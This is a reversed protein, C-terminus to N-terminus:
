MGSASLFLHLDFPINVIKGTPNVLANMINEFIADQSNHHGKPDASSTMPSWSSLALNADPFGTSLIELLNDSSDDIDMLCIGNPSAAILVFSSEWTQITYFIEKLRPKPLAVRGPLGSAMSYLDDILSTEDKDVIRPQPRPSMHSFGSSKSPSEPVSPLQHLVPTAPGESATKSALYGLSPTSAISRPSKLETNDNKALGEAYVRITVGTIKKFVRHFHSKTLGAEEALNALSPISGTEAQTKEITHRARAVLTPQPDQKDLDPKCQKCAKFGAEQAASADDQFVVNARRAVRAGCTPRCYIGTAKVCYVFNGDALPDHAELAAWRSSETLYSAM